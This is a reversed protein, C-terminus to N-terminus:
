PGWLDRETRLPPQGASSKSVSHRQSMWLCQGASSLPEAQGCGEGVRGGWWALSGHGSAHAPEALRHCQGDWSEGYRLDYYAFGRGPFFSGRETASLCQMRTNARVTEQVAADEGNVWNWSRLCGDLRANMQLLGCTPGPKRPHRQGCTPTMM